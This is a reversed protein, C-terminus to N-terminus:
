QKTLAVMQTLLFLHYQIPSLPYKLVMELDIKKEIATVLLTSLYNREMKLVEVQNNRIRKTTAGISAFNNIVQKKIPKEFATPDSIVSQVFRQYEQTDATM